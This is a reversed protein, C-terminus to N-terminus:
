RKEIGGHLLDYAGKALWGTGGLLLGMLFLLVEPTFSMGGSPGNSIMDKELWLFAGAIAIMTVGIILKALGNVRTGGTLKGYVRDVTDRADSASLGRSRLAGVASDKSRGRNLLDSAVQHASFVGEVIERAEHTSSGSGTLLQVVAQRSKGNEFWFVATERQSTM